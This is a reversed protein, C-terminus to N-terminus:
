FDPDMGEKEVRQFLESVIPSLKFTQCYIGVYSLRSYMKTSLQPKKIFNNEDFNSLWM